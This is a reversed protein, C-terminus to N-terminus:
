FKIALRAKDIDARKLIVKKIKSKDRIGLTIEEEKTELLDGELINEGKYPHSLHLNIYSGVYKELTELKIPKEAGLSSVDLTYSQKIPDNEDLIPNIINSVKVIDDLSIPEDRDVFVHLTLEGEEKSLSISALSYGEKALIPELMDKVADTEKM